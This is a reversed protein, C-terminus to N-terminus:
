NNMAWAAAAGNPVAKTGVLKVSFRDQIYRKKKDNCNSGTLGYESTASSSAACNSLRNPGKKGNIDIVVNFGDVKGVTTKDSSKYHISTGDQFFIATNDTNDTPHSNGLAGNVSVNTNILAFLSNEIEADTETTDNSNIESYDFGAVVKNMQGAESLTNIAKKFGVKNQSENINTMLTPLTLTAIVGIISLTILVEALTFGNKKMM